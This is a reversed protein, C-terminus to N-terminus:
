LFDLLLLLPLLTLLTLLLTQIPFSKNKDATVFYHEMDKMKKKKRKNQAYTRGNSGREHGRRKSVQLM